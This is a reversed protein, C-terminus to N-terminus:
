KNMVLAADSEPKQWKWRRWARDMARPKFIPLHGNWISLEYGAKRKSHGLVAVRFVASALGTRDVGARCHLLYPGPLEEFADVLEEIQDAESNYASWGLIKLNLELDKCAQEYEAFWESRHSAKRLCIVTNVGEAKMMHLEEISPQDSRWSDSNAIPRLTGCSVLSM